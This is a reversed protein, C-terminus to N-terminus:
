GLFKLPWLPPMGCDCCGDAGVFDQLFDTFATPALDVTGGIGLEVLIHRELDQGLLKGGIGLAHAPKLSFGLHQSGGTLSLPVSQSRPNLSLQLIKLPHSGVGESPQERQTPSHQHAGRSPPKVRGM